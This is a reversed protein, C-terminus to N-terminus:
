AKFFPIILSPLVSTFSSNKDLYSKIIKQKYEVLEYNPTDDASM